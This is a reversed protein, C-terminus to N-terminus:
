TVKPLLCPRRTYSLPLPFPRRTFLRFLSLIVLDPKAFSILNLDPERDIVLLIM